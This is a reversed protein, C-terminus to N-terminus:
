LRKNLANTICEMMEKRFRANSFQRSHEAIKESDFSMDGFRQLAQVLSETTQNAFHLGTKQDLVTESAGGRGFAIVPKGFSMAEIPVIGFDEESAFIFAQCRSYLENKEKDSVYGLFQINKHGAALRKLAGLEPGSGVIKIAVGTEKAAQIIIDTRKQAVLRGVSLYYGDDINSPVHQEVEVPPYIVLAKRNYFKKIREAITHSNSVWVDVRNVSSIDWLRLYHSSLRRLFSSSARPDLYPMWAWRMPTHCYCIHLSQPHTLVGKAAATSCSIVLDYESLDFQEFIYPLLPITIQHRNRFFWFRNLSSPIVIADKLEPFKDKKYLSTYIPANPFLKHIEVLVKEAGAPVTLTEHVIAIKINNSLPNIAM